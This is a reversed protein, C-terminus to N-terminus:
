GDLQNAKTRNMGENGVKRVLKSFSNGGGRGGWFNGRGGGGGLFFFFFFLFFVGRWAGREGARPWRRGGACPARRSWARLPPPLWFSRRRGPAPRRLSVSHPFVHAPHPSFMPFCPLFCPVVHSVIPSFVQSFSKRSSQSLLAQELFMPSFMPRGFPVTSLHSCYPVSEIAFAVRGKTSFRLFLLHYLMNFVQFLCLFM